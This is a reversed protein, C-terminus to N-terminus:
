RLLKYLREYAAPDYANGLKYGGVYVTPTGRIGIRGAEELAADVVGKYKRSSLCTEFQRTSLKVKKALESFISSPDKMPMWSRDVFLAEHYEWFKKQEAACESAEAAPRANPHIQELPVHHFELRVDKPLKRAYALLFESELKQCYPCQFDSYVRIAIPADAKGKILNLNVKRFASEPIQTLSVSLNLIEKQKYFSLTYEEANVNLPKVATAAELPANNQKLFNVLPEAFDYGTLVGVLKGMQVTDSAALKVTASKLLDGRRELTLTASGNSLTNGELKFGQLTPQAVLASVPQAIQASASSFLLVLTLFPHLRM